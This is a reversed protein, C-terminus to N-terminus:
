FQHGVKNKICSCIVEIHQIRGHRSPFQKRNPRRSTHNWWRLNETCISIYTKCPSYSTVCSFLSSINSRHKILNPFSEPKNSIIPFREGLKVSIKVFCKKLNKSKWNGVNEKHRLDTLQHSLKKRVAEKRLDHRFSRNYSELIAKKSILEIFVM